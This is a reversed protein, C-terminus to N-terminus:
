FVRHLPRPTLRPSRDGLYGPGGPEWPEELAGLSVITRPIRRPQSTVGQCFNQVHTVCVCLLVTLLRFIILNSSSAERNVLNHPVLTIRHLAFTVPKLYQTRDLLEANLKPFQSKTNPIM